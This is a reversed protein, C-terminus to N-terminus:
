NLIIKKVQKESGDSIEFFYIGKPQEALNIQGSYNLMSKKLDSFVVQGMVNRINLTVPNSKISNYRINIINPSPNPFVEFSLNPVSNHNIGSALMTNLKVLFFGATTDTNTLSQTNFDINGKLQGTMYLSQNNDWALDTFNESSPVSVLFTDKLMVNGSYDYKSLAINEWDDNLNGPALNNFERTVTWVEDNSVPVVGQYIFDCGYDCTEGWWSSDAIVSGSPSYTKYRAHCGNTWCSEGTIMIKEDASITLRSYQEISATSVPIYNIFSGASNMKLMFYDNYPSHSWAYNHTDFYLTDRLKALVFMNGAPSTNLQLGTLNGHLQKSFVLNDSADLKAILLDSAETPIFTQGFFTFPGNFSIMLYTNGSADSHIDNLSANSYTNFWQKTGALNYKALFFNTGGAPAPIVNGDAKLTDSFDGGFFLAGTNNFSIASSKM